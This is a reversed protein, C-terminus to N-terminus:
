HITITFLKVGYRMPFLAYVSSGNEFLIMMLYIKALYGTSTEGGRIILIYQDNTSEVWAKEYNTLDSYVSLPVRVKKDSVNIQINTILSEPKCAIDSGWAFHYNLPIQTSYAHLTIEVTV